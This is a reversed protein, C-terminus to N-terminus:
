DGAATYVFARLNPSAKTHTFGTFNTHIQCGKWPNAHGDFVQTLWPPPRAEGANQTVPLNQLRRFALFHGHLHPLFLSVIKCLAM